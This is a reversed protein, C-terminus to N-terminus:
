LLGQCVNIHIIYKKRLSHVFPKFNILKVISSPAISSNKLRHTEEATAHAQSSKRQPTEGLGHSTEILHKPITIGRFM